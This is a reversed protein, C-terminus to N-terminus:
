KWRGKSSGRWKKIVRPSIRLQRRRREEGGEGGGGIVVVLAAKIGRPVKRQATYAAM